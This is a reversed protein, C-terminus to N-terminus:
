RNKHKLCNKHQTLKHVQPLTLCHSQINLWDPTDLLTDTTILHATIFVLVCQVCQITSVSPTDAQCCRQQTSHDTSLFNYKQYGITQYLINIKFSVVILGKGFIYYLFNFIWGRKFFTTQGWNVICLRCNQNKKDKFQVM